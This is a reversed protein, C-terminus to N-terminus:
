FFHINAIKGVKGSIHFNVVKFFYTKKSGFEPYLYHHNSFINPFGGNDLCTRVGCWGLGGRVGWHGGEVGKWAGRQVRGFGGRYGRHGGKAGGLGGKYEGHGGEVGEWAGWVGQTREECRGFGGSNRM